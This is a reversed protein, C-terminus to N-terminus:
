ASAVLERVWQDGIWRKLLEAARLPVAAEAHWACLAECLDAFSAGAEVADLAATEDLELQRYRVSRDKRWIIWEQAGETLPMLRLEEERDVARRIAMVNWHLRQRCRDHRLRPRMHSWGVAPIAAAEAETAFPEDAADFVLTLNWELVAMEVLAPQQSWPATTRLFEALAEGYWRLNYHPSPHAEVYARCLREFEEAGVTARLAPFDNGLVELLRLRYAQTYVDLRFDADALPTGVVDAPLDGGRRLVYTQFDRQLSALNTM